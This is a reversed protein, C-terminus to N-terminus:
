MNKLPALKARIRSLANEVSTANKNVAEAIQNYSKGKLYESLVLKEYTSLNKAVFKKIEELKEHWILKDDPLMTKSPLVIIFEDDDDFGADELSVSDSLLKNNKSNFKKITSIIARKVCLAAYTKFDVEKTEDFSSVANCLAIIGEQQLDELEAGVLFFKRVIKKVLVNYERVIEAFSEQDGKKAKAILEKENYM